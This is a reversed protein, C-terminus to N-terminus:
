QSTSINPPCSPPLVLPFDFYQPPLQGGQGGLEVPGSICLDIYMLKVRLDIRCWYEANIYISKHIITIPRMTVMYKPKGFIFKPIGFKSKPIGFKSKPIGFKSKPIGFRTPNHFGSNPIGFRSKTYWILIQYVLNLNRLISTLPM